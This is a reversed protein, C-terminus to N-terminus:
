SSIIRDIQELATSLVERVQATRLEVIVSERGSMILFAELVADSHQSLMALHPGSPGHEATLWNTVTREGAGTWRRVTKVARHTGGLERRLATAVVAAYAASDYQAIQNEQLSNRTKPSM